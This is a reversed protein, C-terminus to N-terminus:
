DGELDVPRGTRLARVVDRLLRIVGAGVVLGIGIALVSDVWYLGNVLFIILGGVAVAASTAADSVTDLLVSRMHLDERGADRGLVLAGLGMVASTIASVILVPLGHIAPTGHVLRRVAEGLVLVTVILLAGGNILAVITTAKSHPGVRDRISVAIIGAVIALADAVYDGGAALVGLSHATMGVVVLAVIMLVNLGLLISLRRRQSMTGNM